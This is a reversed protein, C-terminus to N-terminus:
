GSAGLPPSAIVFEIKNEEPHTSMDLTRFRQGKFQELDALNQLLEPVARPDLTEGKLTLRAKDGALGPPHALRIETLWLDTVRAEALGRMYVGFGAQKQESELMNVITGQSIQEEQLESVQGRLVEPDVLNARQQANANVLQQIESQTEALTAELGWVSATQWISVVILLAAFLAWVAVFHKAELPERRAILDDSLLNVQQM